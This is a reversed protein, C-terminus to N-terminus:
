AFAACFEGFNIRGDGNTDYRRVLTLVQHDDLEFGADRLAKAFENRDIFQNGDSGNSQFAEALAKAREENMGQGALEAQVAQPDARPFQEREQEMFSLTYEDSEHLTFDFSNITVHAGIYFDSPKFWTGTAPNKM